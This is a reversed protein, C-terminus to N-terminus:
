IKHKTMDGRNPVLKVQENLDDFLAKRKCAVGLDTGNLEDLEDTMKEFDEGISMAHFALAIAVSRNGLRDAAYALDTFNGLFYEMSSYNNQLIETLETVYSDDFHQLKFADVCGKKERLMSM